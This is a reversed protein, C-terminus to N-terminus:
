SIEVLKNQYPGRGIAFLVINQNKRLCIKLAYLLYQLGKREILRGVFLLIKKDKIKYKHKIAKSDNISTQINSANPLIYINENKVGLSHFYNKHRKGPVLFASAKNQIVKRLPSSVIDIITKKREWGWDESWFVSEAGKLKAFLLVIFSDIGFYSTVIINFHGKYLIKILNIPIYRFKEEIVIYNKYEFKSIEENFNIDYKKKSLNIENFIFNVQYKETLKKFFPTRYPMLTNHIFFIIPKQDGHSSENM